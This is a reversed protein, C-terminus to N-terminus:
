SWFYAFAFKKPDKNHLNQIKSTISSFAYNFLVACLLMSSMFNPKIAVTTNMLMQLINYLILIMMLIIQVYERQYIQDLISNEDRLAM